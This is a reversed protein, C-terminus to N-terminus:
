SSELSGKQFLETRSSLAWAAVKAFSLSLAMISMKSPCDELSVIKSQNMHKHKKAQDIITFPGCEDVSSLRRLVRM